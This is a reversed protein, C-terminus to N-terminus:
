VHAAEQQKVWSITRSLGDAFRVQPVWKLLKQARDNTFWRRPQGNPMQPNWEVVGQYEVANMVAAVMTTIPTEVGSCVNIPIEWPETEIAQLIAAAADEVYLFERTATGDGWVVISSAGSAKARLCKRITAPIVHGSRDGPGYLNGLILHTSQLDYQRRYADLLSLQMRKAQGYPENTLEPRGAHLQDEGAPYVMQEPYACLSGVTILHQVRFQRCTEIVNLDMALQDRVLDAMGTLATGIGDTGPYALHVVVAPECAAFLAQCADRRRLDYHKRGGKPYQLLWDPRAKQLYHLTTAGLFGTPGLLLLKM